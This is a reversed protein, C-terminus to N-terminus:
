VCELTAGKNVRKLISESKLSEKLSAFGYAKQALFHGGHEYNDNSAFEGTFPNQVFDFIHEGGLKEFFYPSTNGELAVSLGHVFGDNIARNTMHFRLASGIGSLKQDPNIYTSQFHFVKNLDDFFDNNYKKILDANAESLANAKCFGIINDDMDVAVSCYSSDSSLEDSFMRQKTITENFFTTFQGKTLVKLDLYINASKICLKCIDGIDNKTANRVTYTM